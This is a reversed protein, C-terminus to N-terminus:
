LAFAAVTVSTVDSYTVSVRRTTPDRYAADELPIWLQTGNAVVFQPDPNEQGYSTKGPVVVTVTIPSGGGNDVALFVRSGHRVSDGGAGAAVFAATPTTGTTKNLSTTTLEAM